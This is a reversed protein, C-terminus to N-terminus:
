PTPVVQDGVRLTIEDVISDPVIGASASSREVSSVLLKAIVKGDRVVDLSSGGIVGSQYGDVLTVFGWNPYIQRIKTKLTPLSGGRSMVEINEKLRKALDEAGTNEANLNKLKSDKNAILVDAEQLKIRMGKAKIVLETPEGVAALATKIEEYEKGSTAIKQTEAEFTAKRKKINELLVAQEKTATETDAQVSALEAPLKELTALKQKLEDQSVKLSKESVNKEEIEIKMRGNNKFSIFASALLIIFTLVGFTTAM